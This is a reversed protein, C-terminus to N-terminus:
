KPKPGRVQAKKMGEVYTYRLDIIFTVLLLGFIVVCLDLLVRGPFSKPIQPFISRGPVALCIVMRVPFVFRKLDGIM